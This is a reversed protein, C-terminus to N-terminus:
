YSGSGGLTLSDRMGSATITSAIRVGMPRANLPDSRWTRASSSAATGRLASWSRLGSTSKELVFSTIIPAEVM